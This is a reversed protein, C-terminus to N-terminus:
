LYETEYYWGLKTKQGISDPSVSLGVYHYHNSSEWPHDILDLDTAGAIETWASDGNANVGSASATDLVGSTTTSAEFAQVTVGSPSNAIAVRDFARFSTNQLQVASDNTFRIRLTTEEVTIESLLESGGGQVSINNASIYKNNSLAGDNSVGTSDTVYTSSQYESIRVSTGFSAGYFGVTNNAGDPDIAPSGDGNTWTVSAVM